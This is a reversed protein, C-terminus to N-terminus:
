IFYEPREEELKPLFQEKFNEKLTKLLENREKGMQKEKEFLTIYRDMSEKFFTDNKLEKFVFEMETTTTNQEQIAFKPKGEHSLFVLHM